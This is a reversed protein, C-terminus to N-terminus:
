RAAVRLGIRDQRRVLMERLIEAERFSGSDVKRGPFYKARNM